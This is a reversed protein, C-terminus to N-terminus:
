SESTPGSRYSSESGNAVAIERHDRRRSRQAPQSLDIGVWATKQGRRVQHADTVSNPIAKVEHDAACLLFQVQSPAAEQVNMVGVQPTEPAPIHITASLGENRLETVQESAACPRPHCQRVEGDFAQLLAGYERIRIPSPQLDLADVSHTTLREIRGNRGDRRATGPILALVAKQSGPSEVPSLAEVPDHPGQALDPPRLRSERKILRTPVLSGSSSPGRYKRSNCSRAAAFEAHTVRWSSRERVSKDPSVPRRSYPMWACTSSCKPM